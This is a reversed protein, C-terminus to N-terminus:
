VRGEWEEHFQTLFQEMYRHRGEAIKKASETNMMDKLLLLKEHFHNITTGESKLYEEATAHHKPEIGPTYMSRGKNGGYAFTRAIGIAGIADLRDADQVIMGELTEMESKVGNGKFSLTEIIRCIHKIRTDDLPFTSLWGAAIRPGVSFDGSHFKWDAIDHLLSALQVILDDAEEYNKSIAISTKWVRYIHWWDHGSSDGSLKEQVFNVTSSIILAAEKDFASAPWSAPSERNNRFIQPVDM